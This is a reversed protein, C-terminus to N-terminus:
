CGGLDIRQNAALGSVTTEPGGLPPTVILDVAEIAGLGIHVVGPTGSAYGQAATVEASALLSNPDGSAGTRYADFRTGPGWGDSFPAAIELWNASATRNAFLVSPLSPEWEVAFVDLRGDRDVDVTPAAVWYQPHGLGDPANFQPVGDPNRGVQRFVAPVTGDEASASTVIDTLGDNDVDAFEVHPAKTLLPTLGARETVDMFVPDGGNSRNLFLRVPQPVGRQLTSNFHHGVVIDLRGDGDVDGMASGAVDDESGVPPWDFVSADVERVGEGTGVFLRNSGSIFVDTLGDGSVDGASVGLGHVDSPFGWERSTDTFRLGGVNRLLRSQGGVYRDEVLVLDLRGDGDLHLPVVSRGGIAQPLGADAVEVFRDDTFEYVASPPGDGNRSVVLDLDGDGDFDAFAVGSSRGFVEAFAGDIVFGSGDSRLLRDPSPGDAGREAYVEPRRDAFTGVFVEYSGDGNVDAWAAAHAHMGTLPATLGLADTVDEWALATPGEAPTASWCSNLAQPSPTPSGTNDARQTADEGAARAPSPEDAPGPQNPGPQNPGPQNPTGPADAAPTVEGATCAGAIM